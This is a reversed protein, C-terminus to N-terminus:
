PAAAKAVETAISDAFRNISSEGLERDMVAFKQESLRRGNVVLSATLMSRTLVKVEASFRVGPARSAVAREVADCIAKPGGVRAPLKEGGLVSCHAQPKGTASMACAGAPVVGAALVLLFTANGRM